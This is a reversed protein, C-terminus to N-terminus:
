TYPRFLMFRVSNSKMKLVTNARKPQYQLEYLARASGLYHRVRRLKGTRIFSHPDMTIYQRASSSGDITVPDHDNEWYYSSSVVKGRSIDELISTEM